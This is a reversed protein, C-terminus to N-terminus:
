RGAQLFLMLAIEMAAFYDNCKDLSSESYVDFVNVSMQVYWRIWMVNLFYFDPLFFFDTKTMKSLLM